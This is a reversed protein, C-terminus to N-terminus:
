RRDRRFDTWARRHGGALPLPPHMSSRLSCEFTRLPRNMSEPGSQCPRQPRWDSALSRPSSRAPFSRASRAQALDVLASLARLRGTRAAAVALERFAALYGPLAGALRLALDDQYAHVTELQLRAKDDPTM